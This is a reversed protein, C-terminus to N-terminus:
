GLNALINTITGRTLPSTLIEAIVTHFQTSDDIQVPGPLVAGEVMAPYTNIPTRIRFITFQHGTAVVVVVVSFIFGFETGDVRVVCDLKGDTKDALGAVAEQLLQKMGPPQQQTKFSPWLGVAM